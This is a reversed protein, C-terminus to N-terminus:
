NQNDIILGFWIDKRFEIEDEKFAFNIGASDNLAKIRQEAQLPECGRAADAATTVDSCLEDAATFM